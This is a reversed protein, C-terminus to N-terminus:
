ELQKSNIIQIYVGDDFICVLLCYNLLRLQLLAAWILKGHITIYNLKCTSKLPDVLPKQTFHLCRQNCMCGGGGGRVRGVNGVLPCIRLGGPLFIGWELTRQTFHLCRQNCM